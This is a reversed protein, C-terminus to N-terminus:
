HPSLPLKHQLAMHNIQSHGQVKMLSDGIYVSLLEPYFVFELRENEKMACIWNVSKVWPSIEVTANPGLGGERPKPGSILQIPADDIAFEEHERLHYISTEKVESPTAALAANHAILDDELGAHSPTAFSLCIAGTLLFKTFNM